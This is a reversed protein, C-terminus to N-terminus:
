GESNSCASCSRSSGSILSGSGSPPQVTAAWWFWWALLGLCIATAVGCLDRKRQKSMPEPAATM